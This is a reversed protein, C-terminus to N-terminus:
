KNIIRALALPLKSKLKSIVLMLRVVKTLQRSQCGIAQKQVPPHFETCETMPCCNSSTMQKRDNVCIFSECPYNNCMTMNTQACKQM